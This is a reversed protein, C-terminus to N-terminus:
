KNQICFHISHQRQIGGGGSSVFTSDALWNITTLGGADATDILDSFAIENGFKDTKIICPRWGPPPNYDEHTTSSYIVGSNDSISRYIVGIFLQNNRWPREWEVIGNSDVQIIFPRKWFYNQGPEPFYCKGSIVYKGATSVILDHPWENEILTDTQGYYYQWVIDGNNDLKFLWIRQDVVDFGYGGVLAIYGGPVQHIGIGYDGFQNATSYIRCWETEGCANLKEIWTDGIDDPHLMRTGGTMIYGGDSTPNIDLVGTGDEFQGISKYWLVNGNVDTKIIIGWDAYGDPSYMGGIIYGKDYLEAISWSVTPINPLLVKPWSQAALTLSSLFHSIFAIYFLCRNM